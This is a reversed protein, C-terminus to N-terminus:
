VFMLGLVNKNCYMVKMDVPKENVPGTLKNFQVKVVTGVPPVVQNEVLVQAGGDSIDRAFGSVTGLAPHHIQVKISTPAREFQRREEM